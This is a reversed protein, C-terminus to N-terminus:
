CEDPDPTGGPHPGEVLIWCLQSRVGDQPPVDCFYGSEMVQREDCHTFCGDDVAFDRSFIMRKWEARGFDESDLMQRLFLFLFIATSGFSPSETIILSKFKGM